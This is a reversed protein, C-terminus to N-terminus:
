YEGDAILAMANMVIMRVFRSMIGKKKCISKGVFIKLVNMWGVFINECVNKNLDISERVFEEEGIM